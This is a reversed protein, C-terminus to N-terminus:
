LAALMAAALIVLGAAATAQLQRLPANVEAADFTLGIQWPQAGYGTVERLNVLFGGPVMWIEFMQESDDGPDIEAPTARELNVVAPDSLASVPPLPVEGGEETLMVNRLGPHALVRNRDYLM